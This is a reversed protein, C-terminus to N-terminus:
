RSPTTRAPAGRDPRRADGPRDRQGDAAAAGGGQGRLDPGRDPRASPASPDLGRDAIRDPRRHVGDRRRGGCGRGHLSLEGARRAPGRDPGPLDHVRSAHERRLRAAPERAGRSRLRRHPGRRAPRELAPRDVRRRRDDDPPRLQALPGAAAALRARRGRCHRAPARGPAADAGHRRGGAVRRQARRGATGGASGPRGGLHSARSLGARQARHLGVGGPQGCPPRDAGRPGAAPDRARGEPAPDSCSGM